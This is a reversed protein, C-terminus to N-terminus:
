ATLQKQEAQDLAAMREVVSLNAAQRQRAINVPTRQASLRLKDYNERLKAASLINCRWFTDAQCWRIAREIQDPTHGDRDIMLRMADRSRKTRSPKKSGNRQIEADLLDLLREVDDRRPTADAVGSMINKKGQEGTGRNGPEGTGPGSSGILQVSTGHTDSDAQDPGPFRGKARRENKQHAEWSPIAYYPRNEVTYWQVDYCDAVETRLRPFETRTDIDDNPFAFAVLQNPNATGIGYDDAWNWLAIYFLRARLSARATGPSDWFEPKITRIRPM